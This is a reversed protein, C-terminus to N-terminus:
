PSLPMRGLHGEERLRQPLRNALGYDSAWKRSITMICCLSLWSSFSPKPPWPHKPLAPSGWPFPQPCSPTPAASLYPLRSALRGFYCQTHSGRSNSSNPSGSTGDSFTRASRDGGKQNIFIDAHMEELPKTRLKQKNPQPPSSFGSGAGGATSSAGQSM